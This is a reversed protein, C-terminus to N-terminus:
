PGVQQKSGSGWPIIAVQSQNGIKVIQSVQETTAAFVVTEPALGDVKYPAAAQGEKIVNEPGVIEALRQNLAQREQSVTKEM